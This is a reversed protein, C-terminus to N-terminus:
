PGTVRLHSSWAERLGTPPLGVPGEGLLQGPDVFHGLNEGIQLLLKGNGQFLPLGPHELPLLPGVVDDWLRESGNEM